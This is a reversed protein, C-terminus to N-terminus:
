ALKVIAVIRKSCIDGFFSIISSITSVVDFFVILLLCDGFISEAKCDSEEFFSGDFEEFFSGDLEELFCFDTVEVFFMCDNASALSDIEVFFDITQVIM